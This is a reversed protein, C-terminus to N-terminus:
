GAIGSRLRQLRREERIRYRERRIRLAEHFRRRARELLRAARANVPRHLVDILGQAAGLTGKVRSWSYCNKAAREFERLLLNEYLEVATMTAPAHPHQELAFKRACARARPFCRPVAIGPCGHHPLEGCTMKFRVGRRLLREIQRWFGFGHGATRRSTSTDGAHCMEHLLTQRVSARRRHAAVDISIRRARSDCNGLEVRDKRAELKAVRVEYAPLRGDWYERNYRRFMEGLRKETWSTRKM